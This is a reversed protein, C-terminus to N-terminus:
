PAVAGAAPGIVVTVEGKPPHEQYYASAESLTGRVFEEHVKTLERAVAVRRGPGCAAALDDLLRVLRHPSEFLVVTERSAAVRELLARRAPGKREPFGLFAFRDSPLGSGVLAALVASPGPIPVVAHGREIAAAVVRAGPDSVLPTGADTVLAVDEGRALWELVQRTRERENHEHLSLLPASAGAAQALPRSRRTDEALIRAVGRLTAAARPTLDALNGIPTSVVYLTAM